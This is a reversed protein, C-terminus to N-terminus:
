FIIRRLVRPYYKFFLVSFYKKEIEYISGKYLLDIFVQHEQRKGMQLPKTFRNRFGIRLLGQVVPRPGAARRQVKRGNPAARTRVGGM